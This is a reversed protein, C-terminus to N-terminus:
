CGIAPAQPVPILSWGSTTARGQPAVRGTGKTSGLPGLLRLSLGYGHGFPSIFYLCCHV